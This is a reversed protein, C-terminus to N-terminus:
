FEYGNKLLEALKYEAIIWDMPVDIDISREKPVVFGVIHNGYLKGDEMIISRRMSYAAGSRKYVTPLDQRRMGEVEDMCYPLVKEGELKKMKIPHYGGEVEVMTVASDANTAILLELTKDIDETTRFPSTPQIIIAFDYMCSNKEEMFKIAHQMVPLHPVADGALEAPRIFPVQIGHERGVSAIKESDTSLILDTILESKKAANFTYTILPKGGLEKINKEPIGKSGGRATIVGLIKKNKDIM